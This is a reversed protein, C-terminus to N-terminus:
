QENSIDKDPDSFAANTLFDQDTLTHLFALLAQKEKEGLGLGPSQPQNLDRNDAESILPSLTSSYRIGHNYHDIVQELTDFRGDHMYPATVAINRLTPTKFWGRHAPDGTVAQLGPKLESEKDLGNNSFGDLGDSFGGTLFQSHCDICNAGRLSAKVDPHAMFLKRGLEEQESLRIEGRLFQDYRSNASILTRMFSAIAKAMAEISTEGYARRFAQPYEPHQRLESLLEDLDQGMEDPHQVPGLVQEELSTSRGNWFFREPGWMLNVLAMSNFETPKGSVGVSRAKGDSFAKEQMHCDACSVQNNASLLPDYFLKRGLTVGEETLPNDKPVSFKGFVFPAKFNQLPTPAPIFIGAREILYWGLLGILLILYRWM